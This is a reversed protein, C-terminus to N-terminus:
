HADLVAHAGAGQRDRQVVAGVGGEGSHATCAQVGDWHDVLVAHDAEDLSPAAYAQRPPPVRDPDTDTALRIRRPSKTHRAPSVTSCASAVM